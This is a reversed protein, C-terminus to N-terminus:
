EDSGGLLGNKQLNEFVKKTKADKLTKFIAIKSEDKNGSDYGYGGEIELLPEDGGLWELRIYYKM